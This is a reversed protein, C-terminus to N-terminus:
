PTVVSAASPHSAPMGASSAARRVAYASTKPSLAYDGVAMLVQELAKQTQAFKQADIQTGNLYLGKNIEIQVSDCANHSGSFVRTLAAGAYPTNRAIRSFGAARLASELMDTFAPSCSKGYQNGIVIESPDSAPMSHMNLHVFHGFQRRLVAGADKLAAYYPDYYTAIRREVDSSALRDMYLHRHNLRDHILGVGAHAYRTPKLAYATWADSLLRPHIDTRARNFDIYSRPVHAVLVRAGLDPFHEILLDVFRDERAHLLHPNFDEAFGAPYDRGSHPSDVLVPVARGGAPEFVSLVGPIHM